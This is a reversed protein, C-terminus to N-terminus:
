YGSFWLSDVNKRYASIQEIGMEFAIFGGPNLHSKAQPILKEYFSVGKEDEVFLALHPEHYSVEIQLNNKESRPIYPPNSVIIDFKEDIGSLIDSHQFIIRDDVKLRKANIQAIKLAKKSIDSATITANELNMALTCAICGSGTGIDIIKLEKNKYNETLEITEKVLIETESRPILVDSNAYFEQGM